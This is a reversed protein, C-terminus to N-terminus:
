EFVDLKNSPGKSCYQLSESEPHTVMPCVVLCCATDGDHPQKKFRRVSKQKTVVFYVRNSKNTQDLLSKLSLVFASRWWCPRLWCDGKKPVCMKVWYIQILVNSCVKLIKWYVTRNWTTWCRHCGHGQLRPVPRTEASIVLSALPQSALM